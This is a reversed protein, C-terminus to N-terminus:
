DKKRKLYEQRATDLFVLKGGENRYKWFTWGNTHMPRGTITGRAIEAATSSSPYNNRQFTVTGDPLLDAELDHNKYHVTLKLPAKLLGAVIVDKLTVGIFPKSKKPQKSEVAPRSKRRTDWAKRAAESREASAEGEGAKPLESEIPFDFRVRVRALSARIDKPSLETVKKKLLRILSFDTEAAILEELALRVQRDVFHAKWLIEIDNDRIRDKSLLGLTEEATSTGDSIKVARFMKEDVPVDVCANYIRYEDGNTIVTWKVGAVAAYGMIQGAWKRDDLNQGRAKAELFLKPTRILFFAYDVPKDQPKLKYEQSVEELDGVHWGLARLVPDILATKTDQENLERGRYAVLKKRVEELVRSLDSM